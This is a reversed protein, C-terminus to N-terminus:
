VYSHRCVPDGNVWSTTQETGLWPGFWHNNMMRQTILVFYSLNLDFVYIQYWSFVGLIDM